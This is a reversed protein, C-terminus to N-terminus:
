GRPLGPAWQVPPQNPGLAQRSTYSFDRGWPSEIGSGDLGGTAIGVSSDQGKINSYSAIFYVLKLIETFM